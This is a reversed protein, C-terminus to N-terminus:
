RPKACEVNVLADVDKPSAGRFGELLPFTALAKVM